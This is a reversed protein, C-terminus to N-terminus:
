DDGAGDTGGGVYKKEIKFQANFFNLRVNGDALMHGIARRAPEMFPEEALAIGTPANPFACGKGSQIIEEDTILCMPRVFTVEPGGDEPQFPECVSPASFVGSFAMNSLITADIYDLSDVLAVKNVGLALATEYYIRKLHARDTPPEVRIGSFPISRQRCFDGLAAMTEPSPQETAYFHVAKLSSQSDRDCRKQLCVLLSLHPYDVDLPLLFQNCGDFIKFAACARNFQRAFRCKKNMSSQSRSVLKQFIELPLCSIATHQYEIDFALGIV